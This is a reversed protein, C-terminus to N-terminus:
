EVNTEDSKEEKKITTTGIPPLEGESIAKVERVGAESTVPAVVV